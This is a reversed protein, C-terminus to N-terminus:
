GGSWDAKGAHAKSQSPFSSMCIFSHIRAEKAKDLTLSALTQTLLLSRNHLPLSEPFATTRKCSM